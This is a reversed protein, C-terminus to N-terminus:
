NPIQIKWLILAFAAIAILAVLLIPWVLYIMNVVAVVLFVLLAAMILFLATGLTANLISRITSPKKYVWVTLHM